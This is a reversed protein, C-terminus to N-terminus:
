QHRRNAAELQKQERQYDRFKTDDFGDRKRMAWAEHRAEDTRLKKDSKSGCSEVAIQDVTVGNRKAAVVKAAHLEERTTCVRDGVKVTVFTNPDHTRQSSELRQMERTAYFITRAQGCEPCPEPEDNRPVLVDCEYHGDPCRVDRVTVDPM